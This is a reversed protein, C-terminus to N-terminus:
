IIVFSNVMAGQTQLIWKYYNLQYIDIMLKNTPSRTITILAGGMYHMFIASIISMMEMNKKM